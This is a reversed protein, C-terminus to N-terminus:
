DTTGHFVRCFPKVKAKFTKFDVPHLILREVAGSRPCCKQPLVSFALLICEWLVLDKWNPKSWVASSCWILTLEGTGNFINSSLSNNMGFAQNRNMGFGSMSHSFFGPLWVFPCVYKTMELPLCWPTPSLFELVSLNNWASAVWM